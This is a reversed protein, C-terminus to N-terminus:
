LYPLPLRCLQLAVTVAEGRAEWGCGEGEPRPLPERPRVEEEWEVRSPTAHSEYFIIENKDWILNIQHILFFNTIKRRSLTTALMLMREVAPQFPFM